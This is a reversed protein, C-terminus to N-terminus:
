TRSSKERGGSLTLPMGVAWCRSPDREVSTPLTRKRMADYREDLWLGARRPGGVRPKEREPLYSAGTREDRVNDLPNLPVPGEPDFTAGISIQRATNQSVSGVEM